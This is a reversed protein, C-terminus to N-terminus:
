LIASGNIRVQVDDLSIGRAGAMKQKIFLLEPTSPMYWKMEALECLKAWSVYFKEGNQIVEFDINM